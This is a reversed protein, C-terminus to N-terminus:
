LELGLGDSTEEGFGSLDLVKKGREQPVIQLRGGAM